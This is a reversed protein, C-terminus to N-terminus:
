PTFACPRKNTEPVFRVHHDREAIDAKSLGFCIVRASHYSM